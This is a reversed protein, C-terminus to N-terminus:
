RIASWWRLRACAAPTPTYVEALDKGSLIQKFRPYATREIATM